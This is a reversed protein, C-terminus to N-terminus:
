ACAIDVSLGLDTVQEKIESEYLPNMIIIMDPRIDKLHEPAVIQQGSGTVFKGQKRPNIDVVYDIADETPLTNLFTVGKSGSGWLVAKKGQERLEHLVNEWHAVKDQFRRAYSRVDDAMSGPDPQGQTESGPKDYAPKAEICLFQGGFTENMRLVEFGASRFCHGLSVSSFYNCHEYIIDWIGMERITFMVNPVEFFVITDQQSGINGHVMRMFGRPDAMHELAQRCCMFDASETACQDDYYEAVISARGKCYFGAPGSPDFGIGINNGKECLLKLFDGQGCAIEIIKKGHLDHREILDEALSQIYKQFQPSFDLANEYEGSYDMKAPEFATNAIMGCEPCFGLAIDGRPVQLATEKSRNLLHCHVPLDSGKWFIDMATSHCIPCNTNDREASTRKAATSM